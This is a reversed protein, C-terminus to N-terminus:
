TQMSSRCSWREFSRIHVGANVFYGVADVAEGSAYGLRRRATDGKILDKDIRILREKKMRASAAQKRENWLGNAAYHGEIPQPPDRNTAQFWILAPRHVLERSRRRVGLHRVTGETTRHWKGTVAGVM